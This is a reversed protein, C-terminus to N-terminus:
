CGGGRGRARVMARGRQAGERGRKRVEGAGDRDCACDRKRAASARLSSQGLRRARATLPGSHGKLDASGRIPKQSTRAVLSTQDSHVKTRIGQQPMTAQSQLAMCASIASSIAMPLTIDGVRQYLRTVENDNVIFKM